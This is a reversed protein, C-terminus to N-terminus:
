TVIRNKYLYSFIPNIYFSLYSLFYNRDYTLGKQIFIWKISIDPEFNVYENRILTLSNSFRRWLLKLVQRYFLWIFKANM